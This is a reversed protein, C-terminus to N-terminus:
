HNSKGLPIIQNSKGLPIIQYWIIDNSGSVSFSYGHALLESPFFSLQLFRYSSVVFRGSCLGRKVLLNTCRSLQRRNFPSFFGDTFLVFVFRAFGFFSCCLCTRVSMLVCRGGSSFKSFM